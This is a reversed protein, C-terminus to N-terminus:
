RAVKTLWVDEIEVTRRYGHIDSVEVIYWGRFEGGGKITGVAGAHHPFLQPNVDASVQVSDGPAFHQNYAM